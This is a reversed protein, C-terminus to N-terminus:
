SLLRSVTPQELRFGQKPTWPDADRMGATTSPLRCCRQPTRGPKNGVPCERPFGAPLRSMAPPQSMNSQDSGMGKRKFFSLTVSCPPLATRFSELYRRRMQSSPRPKPYLFIRTTPNKGATLSTPDESVGRKYHQRRSAFRHRFDCQSVTDHTCDLDQAMSDNLILL